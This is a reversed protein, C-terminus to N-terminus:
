VRGASQTFVMLVERLREWVRTQVSKDREARERIGRLARSWPGSPCEETYFERGEGETM